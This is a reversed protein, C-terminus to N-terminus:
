QTMENLLALMKEAATKMQRNNNVFVGHIIRLGYPIFLKDLKNKVLFVPIVKHNNTRERAMQIATAIEERQYYANETDASVLVVTFMSQLQAKMIVEEWVDGLRLTRSDLFVRAPPCLYDYLTEAKKVQSGAHAIFFDYVARKLENRLEPISIQSIGAQRRVQRKRIFSYSWSINLFIVLFFDIKYLWETHHGAFYPSLVFTMTEGLYFLLTGLVWWFPPYTWINVKKGSKNLLYFYSISYFVFIIAMILITLSFFRKLSGIFAEACFVVLILVLGWIITKKM